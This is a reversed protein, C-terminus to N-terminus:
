TEITKSLTGTGKFTVSWTAAANLPATMSFSTILADGQYYYDGNVGTSMRVVCSTQGLAADSIDEVGRDADFKVIGSSSIEWDQGGTLYQKAGDNDKCTTEIQDNTLTLTCETSCAIARLGSGDADDMYVILSNGKVAGTTPM